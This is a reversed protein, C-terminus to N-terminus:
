EYRLSDKGVPNNENEEHKKKTKIYLDGASRYSTIIRVANQLNESIKSTERGIDM